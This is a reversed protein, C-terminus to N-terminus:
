QRQFEPSGLLIGVIYRGLQEPKPNFRAYKAIVKELAKDTQETHGMPLIRKSLVEKWQLPNNPELDSWYSDPIRVGPIWGMGIGVGFQWRAAMVGPDRWVDAQDYYGTPDECQYLPESLSLLANHIGATSDIEANTVRLASVAYEFPRKFKAQYNEPNFFDEDKLIAKYTEKFDTQNKRRFAKAVRNVMAQSPSDNVFHRCLKYAIFESTGRHKVLMDLIQQGEAEPNRPNAPIRVKLVRRAASAHMDPKFEFEIAENRNQKVTWGTLAEAVAIVDEQTYYNDVGLTHLEMLERAYNENLGRMKAIDVAELAMGYDRSKAFEKQAAELLEKAPTARSIYNDLFVLMAPHRAQKNLIDRFTGLAEARIVDREYTTAYYRVSGKSVDISFHNRWFDCASEKLQNNSYIAILLVADKLQQRPIYRTRLLEGRKRRQEPTLRNALSLEKPIIPNYKQVLEQNSMTLTDLKALHAQLVRPEDADGKLQDNFWEELGIKEVEDIMEATAGFAFRSLVHHIKERESLPKKPDRNLAPTGERAERGFKSTGEPAAEKGEQGSALLFSVFLLIGLPMLVLPRLRLLVRM